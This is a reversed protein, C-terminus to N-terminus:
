EHSGESLPPRHLQRWFDEISQIVSRFQGFRFPKTIFHRASLRYSKIRDAHADSTTLVVVPISQLLPDAEIDHLVEYGNKRPLNLDLLILDPKKTRGYSGEQHLYQMATVGDKVINFHFRLKTERFAEMLLDIDAPDDEVLLVDVEQDTM